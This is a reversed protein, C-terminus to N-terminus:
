PKSNKIDSTGPLQNQNGAAAIHTIRKILTGKLTGKLLPATSYQIGLLPGWNLILSGGMHFMIM